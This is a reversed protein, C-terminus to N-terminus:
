ETLYEGVTEGNWVLRLMSVEWKDEVRKVLLQIGTMGADSLLGRGSIDLRMFSSESKLALAVAALTPNEVTEDGQILGTALAVGADPLPTLSGIEYTIHPSEMRQFDHSPQDSSNVTVWVQQGDKHITIATTEDFELVVRGRAKQSGLLTFLSNVFRDGWLIQPDSENDRWPQLVLKSKMPWAFPYSEPFVASAADLTHRGVDRHLEEHKILEELAQLVTMKRVVTDGKKQVIENLPNQTLLAELLRINAVQMAELIAHPSTSDVDQVQNWGLGWQLEGSEIANAATHCRQVLELFEQGLTPPPSEDRTAVYSIGQSQALARFADAYSFTLMWTQEPPLAALFDYPTQSRDLFREIVPRFEPNLKEVLGNIQDSRENAM